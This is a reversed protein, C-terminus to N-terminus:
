EGDKCEESISSAAQTSDTQSVQSMTSERLHKQSNWHLDLRLGKGNNGFFYDEFFAKFEDLTVKELMEVRRNQRDFVYKHSVFECM